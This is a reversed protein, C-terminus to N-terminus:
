NKVIKLSVAFEFSLRFILLTILPVCTRSLFSMMGPQLLPFVQFILFLQLKLLIRADPM